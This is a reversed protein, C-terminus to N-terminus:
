LKGNGILYAFVWSPSGSGMEPVTVTPEETVMPERGAMLPVTVTPLETVMPETGLPEKVVRKPVGVVALVAKAVEATVFSERLYRRMWFTVVPDFTIVTPMPKVGVVVWPM